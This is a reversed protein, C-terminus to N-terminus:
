SLWLDTRWTQSHAKTEYIFEHIDYKLHCMSTIDQTNTKAQNVEGLTLIELDKGTAACPMCENKKMASDYELTCISWMKKIGEDASPGKTAEMDQSNHLTHSHTYPHM